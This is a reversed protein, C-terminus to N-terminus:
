KLRGTVTRQRKNQAPTGASSVADDEEFRLVRVDCFNTHRFESVENLFHEPNQLQHLYLPNSTLRAVRYVTLLLDPLYLELWAAWPWSGRRLDPDNGAYCLDTNDGRGACDFLLALPAHNDGQFDAEEGDDFKVRYSGDANQAIVVGGFWKKTGAEDYLAEVREGIALLPAQASGVPAHEPAQATGVGQEAPKDAPESEGGKAWRKVDPPQATIVRNLQSLM